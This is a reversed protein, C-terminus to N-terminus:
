FHDQFLWRRAQTDLDAEVPFAPQTADTQTTSEASSSPPRQPSAQKEVRPPPAGGDDKGDDDEAVEYRESAEDRLPTRVAATQSKEHRRTFGYLDLSSQEASSPPSGAPGKSPAARVKASLDVGSWGKEIDSWASSHKKLRKEPGPSARPKCPSAEEDGWPLLQTESEEEEEEKDKPLKSQAQVPTKKVSRPPQLRSPEGILVVDDVEADHYTEDFFPLTEEEESCLESEFMPPSRRRPATTSMRSQPLSKNQHEKGHTLTNFSGGPETMSSAPSAHRGSSRGQLRAEARPPAPPPSSLSSSDDSDEPRMKKRASEDNVGHGDAGTTGDDSLVQTELAYIRKKSRPSRISPLQAGGAVARRPEEWEEVDSSSDTGDDLAEVDLGFCAMSSSSAPWKRSKTTAVRAPPRSSLSTNEKDAEAEGEGMEENESNSSSSSSAVQQPKSPSKRAKPPSRNKALLSSPPAPGFAFRLDLQSASPPHARQLSPSPNALWPSPLKGSKSQADSSLAKRETAARPKTPSPTALAVNSSRERLPTSAQRELHRHLTTQVAHHQKTRKATTAARRGADLGRGRSTTELDRGDDVDLLLPTFRKKSSSSVQRQTARVDPSCDAERIWRSSAM